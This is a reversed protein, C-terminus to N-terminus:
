PMSVKWRLFCTGALPMPATARIMGDAITVTVGASTWDGDLTESCEAGYTVGDRVSGLPMQISFERTGPSASAETALINSELPNTFFAYELGNALGDHDEDEGFSGILGPSGIVWLQYPTPPPTASPIISKLPGDPFWRNGLKTQLALHWQEGPIMPGGQTSTNLIFSSDTATLENTMRPELWDCSNLTINDIFIGTPENPQADHAYLSSGPTTYYRFRILLPVDSVPVPISANTVSADTTTNSVGSITAGIQSWTAGGNASTEVALKSGTTMFGRRYGFRLTSGIGPMVKRGLEFIQDPTSLSTHHTLRFARSGFGPTTIVHSITSLFAYTTSTRDIVTTPTASEANETWTVPIEKYTNIRLDEAFPPPTFTYNAPTPPHPQASGSLTQDSTLLNPDVLTVQYSHSTPVGAGSIGAVTVNYTRDGSFSRAAHAAPVEWVITPDGASHTRSRVTATVASGGAQTISVSASSFNAGPYTLSWFKTNLPAPFFGAPPYEVFAPAVSATEGPNQMIYIVNAAARRTSPNSVDFFGPIDGTAFHTASSRMQWRRHGATSNEGGQGNLVDELMYATIADPGHINVGINGKNNANWPVATWTTNVPPTHTLAPNQGTSFNHSMTLMLAARQAAATKQTTAPPTHADGTAIVVTSATNMRTTAPVGGMARFYNMRREMDAIFEASNGGQANTTTNYNGTWNMRSQFGESAQYVGHWFSLVDNRQTRDVTFNRSPAPYTGPTWAASSGAALASIIGM